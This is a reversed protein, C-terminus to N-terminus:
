LEKKHQLLCDIIISKQTMTQTFELGSLFRGHIGINIINKRFVEWRVQGGCEDFGLVALCPTIRVEVFFTGPQRAVQSINTHLLALAHGDLDFFGWM